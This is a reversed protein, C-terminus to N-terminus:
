RNEFLQFVAQYSLIKNFTNPGGPKQEISGVVPPNKIGESKFNNIRPVLTRGQHAFNPDRARPNRTKM